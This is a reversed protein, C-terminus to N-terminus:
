DEFAKNRAEMDSRLVWMEKDEVAKSMAVVLVELSEEITKETADPSFMIM